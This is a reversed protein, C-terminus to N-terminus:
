LRAHLAAARPHDETVPLEADMREVRYSQHGRRIRRHEDRGDASPHDDPLRRQRLGPGGGPLRSTEVYFLTDQKHMLRVTQSAGTAAHFPANQTQTSDFRLRWSGKFYIANLLYMVDSPDVSALISPIRGHTQTNVWGNVTALTAPVNAFDLGQVEADFASQTANLFNSNVAFGQRYWIANAIGLQTSPDLSELLAILDHYGSNVADNTIAGFGLTALMADFTSGSAGNM